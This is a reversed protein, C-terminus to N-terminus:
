VEDEESSEDGGGGRGDGAYGWRHDPVVGGNATCARKQDNGFGVGEFAFFPRAARGDGTLRSGADADARSTRNNGNHALAPSCDDVDGAAATASAVQCLASLGYLAFAQERDATSSNGSAVGSPDNRSSAATRKVGRGGRRPSDGIASGQRYAYPSFSAKQLESQSLSPEHYSSHHSSTRAAAHMRHDGNLDYDGSSRSHETGVPRGAAGGGRGAISEGSWAGGFGPMRSPSPSSGTGSSRGHCPAAAAGGVGGTSPGGGSRSNSQLKTGAVVQRESSRPNSSMHYTPHQTYHPLRPQHQRSFSSQAPHM